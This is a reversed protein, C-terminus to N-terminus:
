HGNANATEGPEAKLLDRWRRLRQQEAEAREDSGVAEAFSRGFDTARLVGRDYSIHAGTSKLKVVEPTSEAFSYRQPDTFHNMFDREMLGLRVWNDIWSSLHPVTVRENTIPNVLGILNHHVIEHGGGDLHRKVKVIPTIAERLLQALLGAEKSSLQKIVEAFAPHSSPATARNSANALLNLYMHKLDPEELSYSLGQMAPVAVNAPPSQVDEEPVESLKAALEDSFTNDFYDKSFGALRGLPRMIQLVLQQRIEVRKAYARAAAQMEPSNESMRALQGKVSDDEALAKKAGQVAAGAAAGALEAGTM